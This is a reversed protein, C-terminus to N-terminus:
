PEVAMPPVAYHEWMAKVMQPPEVMRCTSTIIETVKRAAEVDFNDPDIWARKLPWYVKCASCVGYTGDRPAIPTSTHNFANIDSSSCQPCVSIAALTEEVTMM